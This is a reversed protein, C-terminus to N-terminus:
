VNENRIRSLATRCYAIEHECEQSEFVRLANQFLETAHKIDSQKSAVADREAHVLIINGMYMQLEAWRQPSRNETFFASAAEFSSLSRLLYFDTLKTEATLAYDFLVHALGVHAKAYNLPFFTEPYSELAALYASISQIRLFKATEPETTELKARQALAAGCNAKAIGWIEPNSALEAARAADSFAGFAETLAADTPKAKRIGDHEMLAHGLSNCATSFIDAGGEAGKLSLQVERLFSVADSLAAADNDRCAQDILCNSLAVKASAVRYIDSESIAGNLASRSCAIAKALYETATDSVEVEYARRYVLSLRFNIRAENATKGKIANSQLATKLLAVAVFFSPRLSQLGVNYIREALRELVEVMENEDFPRFFEAASTYLSLASEPDGRLLNIDGRAIRIMSQKRVEVLTKEQQQIEEASFLLRDAEEFNGEALAEASALKIEAVSQDTAGLIEIRQRLDIWERAKARLFEDLEALTAQPNAHDFQRSVAEILNRAERYARDLDANPQSNTQRANEFNM